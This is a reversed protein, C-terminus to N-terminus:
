DDNGEMAEWKEILGGICNTISERLDEVTQEDRVANRLTTFAAILDRTSVLPGADSSVTGAVQLNNGQLQMVTNGNTNWRFTAGGGQSFITGGAGAQIFDSYYSDDYAVRVTRMNEDSSSQLTLGETPNYVTGITVKGSFAGDNASLKGNGVDINEGDWINGVTQFAKVTYTKGEDLTVLEGSVWSVFMFQSNDAGTIKYLATEGDFELEIYYGNSVNPSPRSDADTVYLSIQNVFEANFSDVTFEGPRSSLNQTITKLLYRYEQGKNVGDSANTIGLAARMGERSNKYLQNSVSSYFIHDNPRPAIDSTGGSTMQLTQGVVKKGKLNGSGDRLVLTNATFEYDWPPVDKAYGAEAHDGWGYATDWNTIQTDSIRGDTTAGGGGESTPGSKTAFFTYQLGEKLRMTSGVDGWDYGNIEYDFVGEYRDGVKTVGGGTITMILSMNKTGINSFNIHDGIELQIMTQELDNFSIRRYQHIYVYNAMEGTEPEEPAVFGEVPNGLAFSPEGSFEPLVQNVALRAQMINSLRRNQTKSDFSIYAWEANKRAYYKDDVPAESLKEGAAEMQEAFYRNVELQNTLGELEKTSAFQGKANRFIVDPNTAVLDTTVPAWGTDKKYVMWAANSAPKQVYNSLDVTGEAGGGTGGGNSSGGSVKYHVETSNKGWPMEITYITGDTMHVVIADDVDQEIREIGVGDAGDQGDAGDKGPKGQKGDNGKPGQKGAPGTDGKPGREGKPGTAGAKGDKGPKAKQAGDIEKRILAIITTLSLGTTM